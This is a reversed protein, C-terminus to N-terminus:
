TRFGQLVEGVRDDSPTWLDHGFDNQLWVLSTTASSSWTASYETPIGNEVGGKTQKRSASVTDKHQSSVFYNPSNEITAIRRCFHMRKVHNLIDTAGRFVVLFSLANKDNDSHQLLGFIHDLLFKLTEGCFPPNVQYSGEFPIFDFFSGLSGFFRDTDPFLTSNFSSCTNSLPSAFCEHAVGFTSSMAKLAMPPIIAQCHNKIDGILDYRCLLVFLRTLFHVM